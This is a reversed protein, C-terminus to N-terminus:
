SPERDERIQMARSRTRNFLAACREAAEETTHTHVLEDEYGNWVGFQSVQRFDQRDVRGHTIPPLKKVYFM